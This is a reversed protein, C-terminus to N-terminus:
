PQSFLRYLGVFLAAIVVWIALTRWGASSRAERAGQGSPSAQVDSRKQFDGRTLPMTAGRRKPHIRDTM